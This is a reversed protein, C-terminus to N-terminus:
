FNLYVELKGLINFVNRYLADMFNSGQIMFTTKVVSDLLIISNILVSLFFNIGLFGSVLKEVGTLFCWDGGCELCSRETMQQLYKKYQATLPDIM